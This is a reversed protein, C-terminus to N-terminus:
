RAELETLKALAAVFVTTAAEYREVKSNHLEMTNDRVFGTLSEDVAFYADLYEQGTQGLEACLRALDPALAILRADTERADWLSVYEDGEHKLVWHTDGDGGVVWPRPTAADALARLEDPSLKGV